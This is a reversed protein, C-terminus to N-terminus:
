ACEANRSSSRRRSLHSFSMRLHLKPKVCAVRCVHRFFEVMAAKIKRYQERRHILHFILGNNQTFEVAPSYHKRCFVDRRFFGCDCPFVKTGHCKHHVMAYAQLMFDRYPSFGLRLREVNGGGIIYYVSIRRFKHSASEAIKQRSFVVNRGQM